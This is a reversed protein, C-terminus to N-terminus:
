TSSAPFSSLKMSMNNRGTPSGIQSVTFFKLSGRGILGWWWRHSWSQKWNLEFDGWSHGEAVDHIPIVVM